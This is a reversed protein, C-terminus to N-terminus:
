ARMSTTKAAESSVQADAKSVGQPVEAMEQSVEAARPSDAAVERLVAAQIVFKWYHTHKKSRKLLIRWTSKM